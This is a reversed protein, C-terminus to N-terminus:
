PSSPLRMWHAVEGIIHNNHMVFNLQGDLYGSTMNNYMPVWLLVVTNRSPLEKKVSVWGEDIFPKASPSGIFMEILSHQASISETDKWKEYAILADRLQNM